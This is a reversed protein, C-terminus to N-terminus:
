NKDKAEVPSPCSYLMAWVSTATHNRAGNCQREVPTRLLNKFAAHYQYQQCDCSVAQQWAPWMHHPLASWVRPASRTDGEQWRPRHCHRKNSARTNRLLQQSCCTHVGFISQSLRCLLRLPRVCSAAFFAASVRCYLFGPISGLCTYHLSALQHSWVCLTVCLCPREDKERCPSAVVRM